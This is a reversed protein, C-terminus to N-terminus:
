SDRGELTEEVADAEMEKLEEVAKETKAKILADLDSRKMRRNKRRIDRAMDDSFDKEAMAFFNNLDVKILSRYGKYKGGRKYNRAVIVSGTVTQKASSEVVRQSIAFNKSRVEEMYNAVLSQMFTAVQSRADLDASKRQDYKDKWDPNSYGVTMFVNTERNWSQGEKKWWKKEPDLKQGWHSDDKACGALLPLAIAVILFLKLSKSRIM